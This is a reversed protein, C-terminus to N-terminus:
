NSIHTKYLIKPKYQKSYSFHKYTTYSKNLTGWNWTQGQKINQKTSGLEIIKPTSKRRQLFRCNVARRLFRLCPTWELQTIKAQGCNNKVWHSIFHHTYFAYKSQLQCRLMSTFVRQKFLKKTLFNVTALHLSTHFPTYTTLNQLVCCVEQFTKHWM